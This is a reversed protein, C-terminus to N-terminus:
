DVRNDDADAPDENTTEPHDAQAAIGAALLFAVRRASDIEPPLGDAEAARRELEALADEHRGTAADADSPKAVPVIRDLLLKAAFLREQLSPNAYTAKAVRVRRGAAVAVLLEVPRGKRTIYERLEATTRNPVGPKRGSGPVRGLGKPRGPGRRAPELITVDSM